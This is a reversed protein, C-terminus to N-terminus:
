RGPASLLRGAVLHQGFGMEPLAREPFWRAALAEGGPVPEDQIRLLWTLAVAHKRPDHPGPGSRRAYQAVLDPQDPVDQVDLGLADRVERRVADELREDVRVRGGVLCWRLGEDPTEREILCLERGEEGPRWPLVDVCVVPVSRQVLAFDHEDLWGQRDM